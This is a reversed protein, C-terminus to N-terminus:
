QLLKGYEHEFYNMNLKYEAKCGRLDTEHGFCAIRVGKMRRKFCRKGDWIFLFLFNFLVEKRGAGGKKYARM